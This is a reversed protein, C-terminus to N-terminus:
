FSGCLAPPEWFRFYALHTIHHLHYTDALALQAEPQAAVEAVVGDTRAVSAKHVVHRALGCASWPHAVRTGGEIRACRAAVGDHLVQGVIASHLRLQCREDLGVGPAAM